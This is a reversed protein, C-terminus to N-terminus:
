LRVRLLQKGFRLSWRQLRRRPTREHLPARTDAAKRGKAVDPEHNPIGPYAPGQGDAVIALAFAGCVAPNMATDKASEIAECIDPARKFRLKGLFLVHVFPHNYFAIATSLM